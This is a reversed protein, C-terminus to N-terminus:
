LIMMKKLLQLLVVALLQQLLMTAGNLAKLSSAQGVWDM